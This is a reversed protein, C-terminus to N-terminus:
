IHNAYNDKREITLGEKFMLRRAVLTKTYPPMSAIDYSKEGCFVKALLCCGKGIGFVEKCVPEPMGKEQCIKLAGCQATVGDFTLGPCRGEKKHVNYIDMGSPCTELLCCTGCRSCPNPYDM